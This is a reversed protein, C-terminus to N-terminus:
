NIKKKPIKHLFEYKNSM